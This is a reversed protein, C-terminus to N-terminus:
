AIEPGGVAVIKGDKVALASKISFQDDVTVVKGNFVILDAVTPSAQQAHVVAGLVFATGAFGLCLVARPRSKRMLVSWTEVTRM